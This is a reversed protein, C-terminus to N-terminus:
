HLAFARSQHGKTDLGLTLVLISVVGFAHM